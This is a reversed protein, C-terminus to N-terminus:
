DQLSNINSNHNYHNAKEFLNYGNDASFIDHKDSEPPYLPPPRLNNTREIDRMRREIDLISLYTPQLKM